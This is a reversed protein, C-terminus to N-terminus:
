ANTFSLKNGLIGQSIDSIKYFNNRAYLIHGVIDTKEVGVRFNFHGPTNKNELGLVKKTETTM